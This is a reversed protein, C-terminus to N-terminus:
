RGETRPDFIDRLGDGLLNSALAWLFVMGGGFTAVWWHGTVVGEQGASVLNGWEALGVEALGIFSLTAGVLVVKGMDLTIMVIIPTFSNPLIDKLYIRWRKDGIVRASDVYELQKVHLIEGRILRAYDTWGTIILALVINKFSPGLVGAIALALILEPVSMFLDVLRMLYEDWRGGLVAALSGILVGIITAATVVILALIVSTRAGWVVGYLVDGGQSTTGLPHGPTGPPANLAAYDRPLQSSDPSNADVLFPAFIAMLLILALIVVGVMTTPSRSAMKITDSARRYRTQMAGPAAAAVSVPRAIDSSM